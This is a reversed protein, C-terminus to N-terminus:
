EGAIVAIVDRDEDIEPGNGKGTLWDGVIFLVLASGIVIAVWKSSRLRQIIAM